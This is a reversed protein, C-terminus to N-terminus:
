PKRLKRITEAVKQIHEANSLNIRGGRQLGFTQAPAIAINQSQLHSFPDEESPDSTIYAAFCTSDPVINFPTGECAEQLAELNSQVRDRTSCLYEEDDLVETAALIGVSTLEIPNITNRMHEHMSQPCIMYGIRLGSLGYYKSFSRLIILNRHTNTLHSVSNSDIADAEDIVFLTQPNSTILEQIESEPRRTGLAASPNSTILFDIEEQQVFQNLDETSRGFPFEKSKLLRVDAKRRNAHHVFGSFDPVLLGVKTGERVFVQFSYDIGGLAGATLFINDQEVDHLDSLKSRLSDDQSQWHDMLLARSSLLAKALVEQVRHSVDCNECGAVDVVDNSREKGFETFDTPLKIPPVSFAEFSM